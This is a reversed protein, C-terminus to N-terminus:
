SQYLKEQFCFWHELKWEMKKSFLDITGQGPTQTLEEM